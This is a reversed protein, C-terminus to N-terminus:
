QNAMGAPFGFGMESSQSRSARLAEASDGDWYRNVRSRMYNDSHSVLPRQCGALLAPLALLLVFWLGHKPQM